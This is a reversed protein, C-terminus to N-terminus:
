AKLLMDVEDALAARLVQYGSASLHKNDSLYLDTALSGDTRVFSPSLDAYFIQSNDAIGRVL